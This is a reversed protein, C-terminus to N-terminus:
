LGERLQAKDMAKVVDERVANVNAMKREKPEKPLHRMYYWDMMFDCMLRMFRLQLLKNM